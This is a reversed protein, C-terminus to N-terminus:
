NVDLAIATSTGCTSSDITLAGNQATGASTCRFVQHAGGSLHITTFNDVNAGGGDAYSNALVTGSSLSLNGQTIVVGEGAQAALDLNGVDDSQIFNSLLTGGTTISDLRIPQSPAGNGTSNAGLWLGTRTAGNQSYFSAGWQVTGGSGLAVQFGYDSSGSGSTALLTSVVGAALTTGSNAILQPAQVFGSGQNIVLNGGTSGTPTIVVNGGLPTVLDLNASTDTYIFGTLITNLAPVADLRIVASNAPFVTASVPGLWLGIQAAGYESKFAVEWQGVQGRSAWFATGPFTGTGPAYLQSAVGLICLAEGNNACTYASTAAQPQSDVELGYMTQTGTPTTAGDIAAFNAGWINTNAVTISRAYGGVAVCNTTTVTCDMYGTIADTQYQAPNVARIAAYFADLVTGANTFSAYIQAANAGNVIAAQSYLNTWSSGNYYRQNPSTTNFYVSGIMPDLIEDDAYAQSTIGPTVRPSKVFPAIFTAANFTSGTITAGYTSVVCSVSAQACLKLTYYTGSPLIHDTRQISGSFAGGGSLQGSVQVPVRNGNLDVPPTTSVLDFEYYANAWATGDGDTVTGTLTATQAVAFPAGLFLVVSLLTKLTKRM